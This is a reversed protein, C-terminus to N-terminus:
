YLSPPNTPQCTSPWHSELSVQKIVSFNGAQSVKGWNTYVIKQKFPGRLHTHTPKPETPNFRVDVEIQSSVVM